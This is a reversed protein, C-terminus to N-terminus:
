VAPDALGAAVHRAQRRPLGTVEPRGCCGGGRSLFARFAAHASPDRDAEIPQSTLWDARRAHPSTIATSASRTQHHEEQAKTAQM